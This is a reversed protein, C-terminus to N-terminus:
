DVKNQHQDKKAKKKKILRKLPFWILGFLAAFIAIIIGLTAAIAGAGIGPGLYAFASTTIFCFLLLNFFLKFM